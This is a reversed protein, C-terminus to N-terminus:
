SRTSNRYVNIREIIATLQKTLDLKTNDTYVTFHSLAVKKFQPLQVKEILAFMKDAEEHNLREKFRKKREENNAFICIVYDFRFQLEVEHLLPVEAFILECDSNKEIFCALKSIVPPHFIDQLAIRKEQLNYIQQAIYLKDICAMEPFLQLVKAKIEQDEYLKRVEMDSDFVKYGLSRLAQSAFSKGSAVSGTIGVVCVV